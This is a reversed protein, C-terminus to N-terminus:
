GTVRLEVLVSPKNGTTDDGEGVAAMDNKPVNVVTEAGEAMLTARVSHDETWINFTNPLELTLYGSTATVDFCFGEKSVRSEVWIDNTPGCDTLVIHGDGRKLTIGREELIRAAGPHEYNEIASPMDRDIPAQPPATRPSAQAVALTTIGIGALAVGVVGTLLARRARKIM